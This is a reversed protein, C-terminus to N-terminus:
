RIGSAKEHMTCYHVNCAMMIRNNECRKKLNALGSSFYRDLDEDKDYFLHMIANMPYQYTCDFGWTFKVSGEIPELRYYMEAHHNFQKKIDLALSIYEYPVLKKFTLSGSGEHDNGIWSYVAGPTGDIGSISQKRDPDKIKWPNWYQANSFLSVNKWVEEKSSKIMVNREFHYSKPFFLGSVLVFIIALLLVIGIFAFFKKMHLESIAEQIFLNAKDPYLYINQHIFTNKIKTCFIM